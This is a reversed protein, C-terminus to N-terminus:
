SSPLIAEFTSAVGYAGARYVGFAYSGWLNLEVAGRMSKDSRDPDLRPAVESVYALGDMSYGAGVGDDSADISINADERIKMGFFTGPWSGPGNQFMRVQEPTMGGVFSVGAHAGGAAGFATAGQPDDAMPIMRGRVVGLTLPHHIFSWPKPAPEATTTNNGIRLRDAVASLHGPSPVTGASGVTPTFSSFQSAGDGDEKLQWANNLMQVTNAELRADASRRLASGSLIVQGGVESPTYSTADDALQQAQTMDVGDSLDSATVRNYNTINYSTGTHPRLQFSRATPRIVASEQALLRFEAIITNLSNDLAESNGVLNLDSVM